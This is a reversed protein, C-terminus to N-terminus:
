SVQTLQEAARLEMISQAAADIAEPGAIPDSRFVTSGM